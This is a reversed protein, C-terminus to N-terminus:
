RLLIRTAIDTIPAAVPESNNDAEDHSLVPQIVVNQGSTVIAETNPFCLVATPVSKSLREDVQLVRIEPVEIKVQHYERSFYIDRKSDYIGWRRVFKPRAQWHLLTFDGTLDFDVILPEFNLKLPTGIAVVGDWWECLFTRDCLKKISHYIM